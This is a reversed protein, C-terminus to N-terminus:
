RPMLPENTCGVVLPYGSALDSITASEPAWNALCGSLITLLVPLYRRIRNGFPVIEGM